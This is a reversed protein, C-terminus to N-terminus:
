QIAEVLAGTLIDYGIARPHIDPPAEAMHTTAGATGQMPTFGDAILVGYVLAVEVAVDNLRTMIADTDQELGVVNFGFSFPNYTLLFVVTARPAARTLDRFVRDLNTRYTVLSAEIRQVCAPDNASEACEASGLHGLLDNAGIDLTVVEVPFSDIFDFAQQLQGGSILTGSTEGSRGFNRLGLTSGDAALIQRHFRSVYGDRPQDVGVNAALSDGLAVYYSAGDASTGNVNGAGYQEPPPEVAGAIQEANERLGQLLAGATLLEGGAQTGVIVVSTDTVEVSQVTAREEALVDNVDNVDLVGNVLDDLAGLVVGPIRFAGVDIELLEVSFGGDRLEYSVRGEASLGGSKFAAEFRLEGQEDGEGPALADVFVARIPTDNEALGDQLFATMEAETLEIRFGAQTDIADLKAEVSALADPDAPDTPGSEDTLAQVLQYANYGGYAVSGVLAIPFVVVLAMPLPKEAFLAGIAFLLVVIIAAVAWVEGVTFLALAGVVLATPIGLILALIRLRGEEAIAWESGQADPGLIPRLGRWPGTSSAVM